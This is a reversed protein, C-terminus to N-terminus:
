RFHYFWIGDGHASPAPPAGRFEFFRRLYEPIEEPGPQGQGPRPGSAEVIIKVVAPSSQEVIDRFEPLAAAVAGRSMALLVLLPLLYTFRKLVIM